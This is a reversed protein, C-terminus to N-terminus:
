PNNILTWRVEIGEAVDFNQDCQQCELIFRANFFIDTRVHKGTVYM